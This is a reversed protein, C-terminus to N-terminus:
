SEYIKKKLTQLYSPLGELVKVTSNKAFLERFETICSTRGQLNEMIRRKLRGGQKDWDTLIIICDWNKAIWDCLDTISKGSNIPIIRGNIGLLVLAAVDKEGEVLIPISKGMVSLEQLANELEELTKKYDM